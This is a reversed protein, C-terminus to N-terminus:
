DSDIMTQVALSFYLRPSVSQKTSLQQPDNGSQQM